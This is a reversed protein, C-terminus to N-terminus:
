PAESAVPRKAALLERLLGWLLRPDRRLQAVAHPTFGRGYPVYIRVPVGSADAWRLSRAMPLGHLLELECPTGARRLRGIAEAALALDHSAVRVQRARGVLRDIVALFGARPDRHPDTPDPWQGKVVRVALDHDVAWDADSASRAWRGPLTAGLECGPVASRMAGVLANSADAAEPGHSDVHLSVGRARAASAVELALAGDFRLAPPKLSLYADLRGDALADIGALYERAVERASYEPTNWLGVTCPRREDALRRAVALGDELSAGGIWAHAGRQLLPLVCASAVRGAGCRLLHAAGAPPATSLSAEADRPQTRAM